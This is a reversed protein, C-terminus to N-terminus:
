GADALGSDGGDLGALALAGEFIEAELLRRM